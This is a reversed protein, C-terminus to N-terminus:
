VCSRTEELKCTQGHVRADDKFAAQTVERSEDQLEAFRKNHPAIMVHLEDVMKLHNHIALPIWKQAAWGTFLGIARM